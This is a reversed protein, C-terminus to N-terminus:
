NSVLESRFILHPKEPIPPAVITVIKHMGSVVEIQYPGEALHSLGLQIQHMFQPDPLQFHVLDARDPKRLKIWLRELNPNQIQISLQGDNTHFTRIKFAVDTSAVWDTARREPNDTRDAAMGPTGGLLATLSIFLLNKLYMKM